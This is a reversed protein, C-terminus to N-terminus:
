PHQTSDSGSRRKDFILSCIGSLCAIVVVGVALVVIILNFASM